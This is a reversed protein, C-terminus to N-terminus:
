RPSVKRAVLGVNERGDLRLSVPHDARCYLWVREVVLGAAEAERRLIRDDLLHVSRPMQSFKKHSSWESLKPIWGPWRDGAALRREFEPIYPAFATQYPTTAHVFLKGGPRLWGAIWRMGRELQNGTLFHFVNSAHVAGLTGDSFWVDRPFRAPRIRLRAMAPEGLEADALVRRRLEGLHAEDLDNAVVFAGARLAAMTAVGFAAGIDLAASDERSCFGTRCFEVFERSVDNLQESAWGMQNKTIIQKPRKPKGAPKNPSVGGSGSM